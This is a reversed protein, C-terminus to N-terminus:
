AGRYRPNQPGQGNPRNAPPRPTPPVVHVNVPMQEGPNYPMRVNFQRGNYEYAVDYAVVREGESVPTASVVRAVDGYTTNFPPAAVPDPVKLPPQDQAAAPLSVLGALALVLISKKM